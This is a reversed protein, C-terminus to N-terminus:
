LKTSYLFGSYLVDRCGTITQIHPYKLKSLLKVTVAKVVKVAQMIKDRNKKESVIKAAAIIGALMKERSEPNDIKEKVTKTSDKSVKKHM